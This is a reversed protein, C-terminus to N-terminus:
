RRRRCSPNEDLYRRFGQALPQYGCARYFTHAEHGDAALLQIKYCGASAALQGAAAMLRKGIGRRRHAQAVVVNEVFLISRGSRTLNPLVTCDATGALTDGLAAVLVTRGQQHRVAAWIDKAADAALPEDDPNLEGYLSLLASLDSEVASRITIAM